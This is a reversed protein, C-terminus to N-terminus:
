SDVNAIYIKEKWRLTGLHFAQMARGEDNYTISIRIINPLKQFEVFYFCTLRTDSFRTVKRFKGDVLRNVLEVPREPDRAKILAEARAHSVEGHGPFLAELYGDIFSKARERYAFLGLYEEPIKSRDVSQHTKMEGRNMRLSRPRAKSQKIYKIRKAEMTRNKGM